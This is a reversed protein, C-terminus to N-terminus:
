ATSSPSSRSCPACPTVAIHISPPHCRRWCGAAREAGAARLVVRVVGHPRTISHARAGRKHKKSKHDKHEKHSKRKKHDKHSKNKHEKKHKHHKHEKHEKGEKGM